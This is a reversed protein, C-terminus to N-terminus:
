GLQNYEWKKKNWKGEYIIYNNSIGENLVTATASILCNNSISNFAYSVCEEKLISICMHSCEVSTRATYNEQDSELWRDTKKEFMGSSTSASLAQRM